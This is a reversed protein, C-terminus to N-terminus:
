EKTSVVVLEGDKNEFTTDGIQILSVGDLLGALSGNVNEVFTNFLAQEKLRAQKLDEELQWDTKLSGDEVTINIGNMVVSKLGEVRKLFMMVRYKAMKEEEANIKSM